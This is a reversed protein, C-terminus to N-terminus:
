HIKICCLVINETYWTSTYTFLLHRNIQVSQYQPCSNFRNASYKLSGNQQQQLKWPDRPIRSEKIVVSRLTVAYVYIYYFVFPSSIACSIYITIVVSCTTKAQINNGLPAHCVSNYLSLSFYRTRKICHSHLNTSSFLDMTKKPIFTSSPSNRDWAWMVSVVQLFTQIFTTTKKTKTKYTYPGIVEWTVLM